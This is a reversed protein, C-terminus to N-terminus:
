IPMRLLEQLSGVMRDRISVIAQLTIESNTVATVVDTLDAKGQIAGASMKEAGRMTNMSESATESLYDAFNPAGSPSATITSVASGGGLPSIAGAKSYAQVASALGVM